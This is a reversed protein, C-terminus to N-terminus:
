DPISPLETELAQAVKELQDREQKVVIEDARAIAVLYDLIQKKGEDSLLAELQAALESAEPMHEVGELLTDFVFPAFGPFMERGLRLAVRKEVEDISGDVAVMLAALAAAVTPVDVRIYM